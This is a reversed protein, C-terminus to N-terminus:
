NRNILRRGALAIGLLALGALASTGPEPVSSVPPTESPVFVPLLTADLPGDNAFIPPKEHENPTPVYDRIVTPTPAPAGPDILKALNQLGDPLGNIRSRAIEFPLPPAPDLEPKKMTFAMQVTTPANFVKEGPEDSPLSPETAREMLRNGCRARAFHIGDTLLKEGKHLTILRRTWYVRDGIRYSVYYSHDSELTIVRAESVNFDSYHAGAVSDRALAKVLEDRTYAGGPIISYRFYPHGFPADPTSQNVKKLSVAGSVESKPAPTQRIPFYLSLVWALLLAGLIRPITILKHKKKTESVGPEM